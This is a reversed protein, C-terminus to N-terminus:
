SQLLLDINKIVPFGFTQKFVSNEMNIEQLYHAHVM